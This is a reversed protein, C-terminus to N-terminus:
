LSLFIVYCLPFLIKAIADVEFIVLSFFVCDCRSHFNLAVFYAITERVCFNHLIFMAVTNGCLIKSFILDLDCRCGITKFLFLFRNADRVFKRSFTIKM